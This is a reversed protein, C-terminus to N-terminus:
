AFLHNSSDLLIAPALRHRLENETVYYTIVKTFIFKGM